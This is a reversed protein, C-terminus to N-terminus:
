LKEYAIAFIKFKSTLVTNFGGFDVTELNAEELQIHELMSRPRRRKKYSAMVEGLKSVNARQQRKSRRKMVATCIGVMALPVVILLGIVIVINVAIVAMEWPKLVKTSSPDGSEETSM